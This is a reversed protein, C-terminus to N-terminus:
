SSNKSVPDCLKVAVDDGSGSGQAALDARGFQQLRLFDATRDDVDALRLLKGVTVQGLRDLARQTPELEFDDGGDVKRVLVAHQIVSRIAPPGM